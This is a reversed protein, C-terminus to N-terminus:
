LVCVQGKVAITHQEWALDVTVIRHQTSGAVIPMRRKPVDKVALARVHSVPAFMAPHHFGFLAPFAGLYAGELPLGVAAGLLTCIVLPQNFMGQFLTATDIAAVSGAITLIM